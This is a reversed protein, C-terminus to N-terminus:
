TYSGFVLAVPERGFHDSLRVRKGGAPERLPALAFDPAPAGERVSSRDASILREIEAAAEGYEMAARVDDETIGPINRAAEGSVGPLDLVRQVPSASANRDSDSM